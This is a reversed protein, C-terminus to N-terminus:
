RLTQHRQRHWSLYQEHRKDLRQLTLCDTISMKELSGHDLKSSLLIQGSRDFSILFRDFLADLHVALLFGNYVDLREADNACDAWPKAHSARLLEPICIGTVACAGDWYDLMAKRYRNQGIRQRVLREVETGRFQQPLQELEVALENQYDDAAQSPLSRSLAAARNLFEHLHSEDACQFAEQVVCSAFEQELENRLAQSGQVVEVQYGGTGSAVRLCSPHRASSLLMVYNAEEAANEFGNDYGAKTILSAQLLNM